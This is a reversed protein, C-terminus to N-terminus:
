KPSPLDQNSKKKKKEKKKKRKKKKKKKGREEKIKNKIQLSIRELPQIRRFIIMILWCHVLYHEVRFFFFILFWFSFFSFFLVLVWLVWEEVLFFVFLFVVLFLVRKEFLSFLLSSLCM